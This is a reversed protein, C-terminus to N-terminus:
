VGVAEPSPTRARTCRNPLRSAPMTMGFMPAKMAQPRIVARNMGSPHSGLLSRASITPGMM